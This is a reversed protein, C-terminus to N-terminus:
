RWEMAGSIVLWAVERRARDQSVGLKVLDRVLMDIIRKQQLTILAKELM